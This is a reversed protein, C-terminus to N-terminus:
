PHPIDRRRFGVFSAALLVLGVLTLMVLGVPEVNGGPPNGVHQTPSLDRAWTPLDLGPGLFAIFVSAGLVGWVLGFLRPQLAFLACAIGVVALYAPVYAVGAGVLEGILRADGVSGAAALAFTLTGALAVVLAGAAAVLTHAALWRTRAVSGGVVPEIRNSSEERRITAFASAIYGVVILAVYVLAISYFGDAPNGPSADLSDALSRNEAIADVVQRALGGFMAMFAAAGVAWGITAPRHLWIATGVPRRMRAGATPPGGIGYQLTSDGLDRHGALLTAAVVGVSGVAIPIALAWWRAPGFADVKETWGLPSLWSIWIGSADGIGRLVYSVLLVGLGIAYVGRAHRVLQAAVAAIGAFCYALAGLSMAYLFARWPPVDPAALAVGAGMLVTAAVTVATTVAFAGIVPARRDLPRALLLELRGDEEEGRTARAMLALGAFPLLFSGIFGFEDQIVGGLTNIGQFKGNLAYLAGGSVSDAYGQIEAPTNYLHAVGLATAILTGALVVVWTVMQRQRFRWQISTLKISSTSISM